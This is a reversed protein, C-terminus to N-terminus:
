LNPSEGSIWRLAEALYKPVDINIKREKAEALLNQALDGKRLKAVDIQKKFALKRKYPDPDADIKQWDGRWARPRMRKWSGLFLEANTLSELLLEPEFSTPNSFVAAFEVADLAEILEQLDEPRESKEFDGDTIVAVRQSIRAGSFDKKLLARLYPEFDVGDIPVLATGSYRRWDPKELIQKALVPLVLAESIGEILLVRPGFLMTNRTANLYQRLKRMHDAALGLGGIAIARSSYRLKPKRQVNKIENSEVADGEVPMLPCLSRQVVILDEVNSAAVIHPSHTTIVVQIRGLWEGDASSSASKAAEAQLHEILVTQLQPHLHAEPEEVLLITLDAEAADTLQALVTAVFLLNAYGLGSEALERPDLGAENMLLRLSRAISAVSAEGFGLAAAQERAGSTLESLPEQVAKIAAPLPAVESIDEFTKGMTTLFADRDAPERLLREIVGQVRSGYRSALERQADRLPPLYLHRIRRRTEPEPDPDNTAALGARWSTTGRQRGTPPPNYTLCYTASKSEHDYADHYASLGNGKYTATITVRNRTGGRHLDDANFYLDRKGDLPATVLRVAGMVNSKGGNNEGLLVSVGERLHIVAEDFSRFGDLQLRALYVCSRVPTTPHYKQHVLQGLLTLLPSLVHYRTPSTICVCIVAVYDGM